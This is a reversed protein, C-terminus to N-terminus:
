GRREGGELPTGKEPIFALWSSVGRKGGPPALCAGGRSKGGRRSLGLPDEESSSAGGRKGRLPCILNEM